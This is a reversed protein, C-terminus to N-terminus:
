LAQRFPESRVDICFVLQADPENKKSLNQTSLKKLLPLRYKKENAEIELIPAKKKETLQHWKLLEKAEPWLLYTIAIRVALYDEQSTPYQHVDNWDTLYKIHAAWGPLTTLLLTLFEQQDDQEIKLLKLCNQIAKKPSSPLDFEVLKRWANYFGEKRLPMSITAQGSDLFVQLWKITELNVSEMSKPLEESEFYTSAKTLAEEFALDELGQLPNVAILNKLPWFPAIIKWSEKIINEM